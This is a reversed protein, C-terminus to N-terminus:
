ELQFSNMRRESTRPTEESTSIIFLAFGGPTVSAVTKPGKKVVSAFGLVDM